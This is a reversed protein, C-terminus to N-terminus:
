FTDKCFPRCAPLEPNQLSSMNDLIVEDSVGWVGVDVGCFHILQRM